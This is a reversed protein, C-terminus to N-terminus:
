RSCARRGCRPCRARSWPSWRAAAAAGGRVDAPGARRGHLAPEGDAPHTGPRGRARGGHRCGRAARGPRGGAPLRRPAPRGPEHPHRDRAHEARGHVLHRRLRRAGGAAARDGRLRRRARPEPPPRRDLGRGRGGHEQRRVAAGGPRRGGGRQPARGRHRVGDRPGSSSARAASTASGARRRPCTSRPARTRRSRSRACTASSAWSRRAAHRRRDDAPPRGSGPRALLQARADRQRPRGSCGRRPGGRDARPRAPRPDRAGRLLRAHRDPVRRAAGSGPAFTRGEPVAAGNFGSAQLPLLNIVGAAEVGPLAAM